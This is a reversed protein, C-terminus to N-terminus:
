IGIINNNVLMHKCSCHRDRQKDTGRNFTISHKYHVNSNYNNIYTYRRVETSRYVLSLGTGKVLM